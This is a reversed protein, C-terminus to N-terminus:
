DSSNVRLNWSRLVSPNPWPRPLRAKSSSISKATLRSAMADSSKFRFISDNWIKYYNAFGVFDGAVGVRSNTVSLLIGRVFPYAIFLGLLVVTPVLLLFALWREDELVRQRRPQPPTNFTSIAEVAM